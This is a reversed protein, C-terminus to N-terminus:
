RRNMPEGGYAANAATQVAAVVPYRLQSLRLGHFVRSSLDAQGTADGVWVVTTVRSSTEVIM